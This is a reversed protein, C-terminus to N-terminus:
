YRVREKSSAIKTMQQYGKCVIQVWILVQDLGLGNSVRITNTSSIKSFNIKFVDVFCASNGLM